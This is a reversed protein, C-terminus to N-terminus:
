SLECLNVCAIVPKESQFICSDQDIHNEQSFDKSGTIRKRSLYRIFGPPAPISVRIARGQELNLITLIGFTRM